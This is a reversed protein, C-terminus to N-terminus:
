RDGLWMGAVNREKWIGSFALHDGMQGKADVVGQERVCESLGQGPLQFSGASPM